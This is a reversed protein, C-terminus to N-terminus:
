EVGPTGPIGPTDEEVNNNAEKPSKGATGVTAGTTGVAGVNYALKPIKGVTGVTAGTTDVVGVIPNVVAKNNHPPPDEVVERSKAVPARVVVGVVVEVIPVVVAKNNPPLREVVVNNASPM